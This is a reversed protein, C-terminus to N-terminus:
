PCPRLSCGATNADGVRVPGADVLRQAQQLRPGAPPQAGPTNEYHVVMRQSLGAAEGLETQTM